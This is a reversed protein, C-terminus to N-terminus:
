EDAERLRQIPEAAFRGRRHLLKPTYPLGDREICGAAHLFICKGGVVIFFVM